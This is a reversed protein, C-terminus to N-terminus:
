LKPQPAADVPRLRSGAEGFAMATGAVMCSSLAVALGDGAVLGGAGLVVGFGGWLNLRLKRQASMTEFMVGYAVNEGMEVAKNFVTKLM